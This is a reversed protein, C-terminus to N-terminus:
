LFQSLWRKVARPNELQCDASIRGGVGITIGGAAHIAPFAAADKDDDGLYIPLADAWAESKLIRAVTQHKSAASPGIELFRDGGLLKFIAAHAIQQNAIDRAQTLVSEGITADADKAHIALTWGKDELYFGTHPDLITRWQTKIQDLIPRIERQEVVHQLEGTVLRMELGYSGAKIIGDLPLLQEIHALRRGSIITVRMREHTALRTVLTQLEVDPLIVDPNPAFDALTGDYDLFWWIRPAAHIREIITDDQCTKM